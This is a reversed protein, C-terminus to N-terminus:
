TSPQDTKIIIRKNRGSMRPLEDQQL